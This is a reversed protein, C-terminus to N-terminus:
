VTSWSEVGSSFLMLFVNMQGSAVQKKDMRQDRPMEGRMVECGAVNWIVFM